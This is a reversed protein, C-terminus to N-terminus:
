PKEGHPSPDQNESPSGARAEPRDTRAPRGLGPHGYTYLLGVLGLQFMTGPALAPMAGTLSEWILDTGAASPNM